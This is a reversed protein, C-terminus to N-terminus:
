CLLLDLLHQAARLWCHENILWLCWLFLLRRRGNPYKLTENTQEKKKKAFTQIDNEWESFYFYNKSKLSSQKM